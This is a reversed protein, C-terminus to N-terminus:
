FPIRDEGTEMIEKQWDAPEREEEAEEVRALLAEKEDTLTNVNEMAASLSENLNRITVAMQRIAHAADKKLATKCATTERFKCAFCEMKSCTDLSRALEEYDGEWKGGYRVDKGIDQLAKRDEEFDAKELAEFLEIAHSIASYRSM